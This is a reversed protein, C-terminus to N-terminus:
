QAIKARYPRPTGAPAAVAFWSAVKVRGLGAEALTPVEPMVDLRADADVALAKLKKEILFGKAVTYSAM